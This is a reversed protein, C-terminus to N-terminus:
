PEGGDRRAQELLETLHQLAEDLEEISGGLRKSANKFHDDALQVVEEFGQRVVERYSHLSQDIQMFLHSATNEVQGFIQQYQRLNGQMRQWVEDQQRHAEALREVQKETLGVVRQVIEGADKMSQTATAAATAVTRMETSIRRLDGTVATYQGLADQLRVLTTDLTSRVEEVRGLHAQHQELLETVQDSHRASWATAQEIVTHAAGTAQQASEAVTHAMRQGLESVKSSLDHVVATLAATMNTASLGASEGLQAMLERLLTTLEEVQSRGLAMQEETARRAVSVLDNLTSQTTLFQGNMGELLHATEGLATTAREFEQQASGSLSATFRTSIDGLVTTMTRELRGLLEGLSGALSDQRQAEATRLVETLDEITTVMRELTPGMSNSIGQQLKVPLDTNLHRFATAQESLDQQVDALIRAASLRPVLADITAVLRRHSNALRHFLPKEFLLFITAAALAAISSVFKGSLGQILNEIGRVRNDEIRVDLLAVLIALFTVLLGAGTVIGPIAMFFGRNLRAEIVTTDNFAAEASESAWFRAESTPGRRMVLQANFRQWAPLLSPTDEFARAIAACASGSLGYQLDVGHEIRIAELRATLRQHVQCERCVLWALRTLASLTCALLGVAALWAFIPADLGFFTWKAKLLDLVTV